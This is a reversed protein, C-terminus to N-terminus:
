SGKGNKRGKYSAIKMGRPLDESTVTPLNAKVGRRNIEVNAANADEEDCECDCNPKGCCSCSEMEQRAKGRRGVPMSNVSHQRVADKLLRRVADETLDSLEIEFAGDM